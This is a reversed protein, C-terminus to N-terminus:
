QQCFIASLQPSCAEKGGAERKELHNDSIDKRNAFHRKWMPGPDQASPRTNGPAAASIDGFSLFGPALCVIHNYRVPLLGLAPPM